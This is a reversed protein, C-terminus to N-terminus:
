AAADAEQADISERFMVRNERLFPLMRELADVVLPDLQEGRVRRIERFAQDETRPARYPRRSTLADFTDAVAIVRAPLPIGAGAIGLPYGGGSYREHHMLVSQSADQLQSVHSLVHYGRTPHRKVVEYEDDTLRGPKRLISEPMGIKGVDHLISAWKLTELEEEKLGIERGLLLSLLHVRTSHGSTCSDKAEITSVLAKVTSLLFEHLSQYMEGGHLALRTQEALTRLLASERRGFPRDDTRLLGIFGQRHGGDFIQAVALQAPAPLPLADAIIERLPGSTCEPLLGRTRELIRESLRRLTDRALGDGAGAASRRTVIWTRGSRMALLAADADAVGLGQELIFELTDGSSQPRVLKSSIRHLLTGEARLDALEEAAIAQTQHLDLQGGLTRALERLFDLRAMTARRRLPRELRATLVLGPNSQARLPVGLCIGGGTARARGVEGRRGVRRALDRLIPADDATVSREGATLLLRGAATWVGLQARLLGASSQLLEAHHTRVLRGLAEPSVARRV